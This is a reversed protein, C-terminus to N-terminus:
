RTTRECRGRRPWRRRRGIGTPAPAQFRPVPPGEMPKDGSGVGPEDGSRGPGEIRAKLMEGVDSDLTLAFEEAAEYTDLEALSDDLSTERARDPEEQRGAPTLADILRAAFRASLTPRSL